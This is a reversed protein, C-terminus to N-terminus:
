LRLFRLTAAPTVRLVEALADIQDLADPNHDISDNSRLRGALLRRSDPLLARFFPRARCNGSRAAARTRHTGALSRAHASQPAHARGSQALFPLSRGGRYPDAGLAALTNHAATAHASASPAESAAAPAAAARSLEEFLNALARREPEFRQVPWLALALLTQFLGGVVALLGASVARHPDLPQASFVILTVLTTVGMDTASQSIAVM